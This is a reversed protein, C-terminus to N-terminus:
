VHRWSVGDGVQRVAARSVRDEIGLKRMVVTATLGKALMKKAKKATKEDLKANKHGAGKHINLADNKSATQMAGFSDMWALNLPSNNGKDGDKHVVGLPLGPDGHVAIAVVRSLLATIQRPSGGTALNVLVDGKKHVRSVVTKEKGCRRWNTDTLTGDKEVRYRGSALIQLVLLDKERSVTSVPKM